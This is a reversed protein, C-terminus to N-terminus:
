RKGAQYSAILRPNTIIIRQDGENGRVIAVPKVISSVADVDVEKYKPNVKRTKRESATRKEAALKKFEAREPKKLKDAKLFKDTPDVASAQVSPQEEQVDGTVKLLQYPKFYEQGLGELYIKQGDINSITHVHSGFTQQYSKKFASKAEHVGEKIRVKDGVQFKVAVVTPQHKSIATGDWLDRPKAGTASHRLGNFQNLVIETFKPWDKSKNATMTNVLRKSITRIDREVIPNKNDDHPQSLILRIGEEDCYKKFGGKGFEQDTNLNFPKGYKEVVAKFASTIAPLKRGKLPTICLLRRSFVDVVVFYGNFGAYDHGFVAIDAEYNYGARYGEVSSFESPGHVEKTIQQISKSSVWSLAVKTSIRPHESHVHKAFGSPGLAVGGNEYYEANLIDLVDQSLSSSM